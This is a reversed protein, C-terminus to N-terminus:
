VVPCDLEGLRLVFIAMSACCPRMACTRLSMKNEVFGVNDWALSVISVAITTSSYFQVLLEGTNPVKCRFKYWVCKDTLSSSYGHSDVICKILWRLGLKSM